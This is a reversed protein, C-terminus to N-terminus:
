RGHSPARSARWWPPAAPRARGPVRAAPAAHASRPCSRGRCTGRRARGPAGGAVRRRRRRRPRGPRSARQRLRQRAARAPPPSRRRCTGAGRARRRVARRAGRRARGGRRGARRSTALAVQHDRGTGGLKRSGLQARGACARWMRGPSRGAPPRGAPSRGTRAPPREDVDGEARDEVELGAVQEVPHQVAYSVERDIDQDRDAGVELRGVEARLRGVHPDLPEHRLGLHQGAGGRDHAVAARAAHDSGEGM